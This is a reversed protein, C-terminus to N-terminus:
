NAGDAKAFDITFNSVRKGHELGEVCDQRYHIGGYLRSNSAQLAENDFYAAQTPFLYGLVNAGAASFTSHGSTYAPFNPIGTSTKIEADMNTPRPNFYYFKTEWCAVGADHIAINLYALARATRVESWAADILYEAAIDNWHGPPTYTGVGDAWKHVIALRERTIEKAYKKVEAVQAAMEPSNTPYPPAPRVAFMQDSTMFWCKIGGYFPLMPPRAPSELSTWPIQGKAISSDALAQWLTPNGGATKMGDTKARSIFEACVANGISNGAAVDSPSAKGSWIAANRQDTAYQYIKASDAPFLLKLAKEAVSAMVGEESPYSPLNTNGMLAEIGSDNMAPSARNYLFKFHWAKQLAEYQAACFYSFSRCTYPPNAFPFIPYNFPNNADPAPYTNDANPAPPLNNKAVLERLIQNWRLSGGGDWFKIIERQEVTLNAQMQKISALEAQYAVSQVDDPAILYVTIPLIPTWDGANEDKAVAQFHPLQETVSIEEQCAFFNFSALALLLFINKM